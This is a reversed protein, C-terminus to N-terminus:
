LDEAPQQLWKLLCKKCMSRPIGDETDLLKECEPLNLCFGIRCDLDTFQMLYDVLEEDSMARIRDANTKVKPHDVCCRSLEQMLLFYEKNDTEFQIRYQGGGTQTNFGTAM